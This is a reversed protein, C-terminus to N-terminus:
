SVSWGRQRIAEKIAAVEAAEPEKEFEIVVKGAKYGSTLIKTSIGPIQKFFDPNPFPKKFVKKIGIQEEGRLPVPYVRGVKKGKVM